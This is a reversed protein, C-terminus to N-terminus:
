NLLSTLLLVNLRVLETKMGVASRGHAGLGHCEEQSVEAYGLGMAPGVGGIVIRKGLALEFGHLVPRLEGLAETANLVAAGEALSEEVPVVVLMSVGANCQHCRGHNM